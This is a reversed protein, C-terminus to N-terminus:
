EDYYSTEEYDLSEMEQQPQSQAEPDQEEGEEDEDEEEAEEDAEENEDVEGTAAEGSQEEDSSGGADGTDPADTGLATDAAAELNMDPDDPEHILPEGGLSVISRATHTVTVEENRVDLKSVIVVSCRRGRMYSIATDYDRTAVPDGNTMRDWLEFFHKMTMGEPVLAQAARGFARVLLVAPAGGGGGYDSGGGSGGGGGSYGGGTKVQGCGYESDVADAREAAAFAAAASAGGDHGAEMDQFMVQFQAVREPVDSTRGCDQCRMGSGADDGARLAKRCECDRRSCTEYYPREEANCGASYVVRVAARFVMDAGGYPPPANQAEALTMTETRGVLREAEASHYEGFPMLISLTAMAPQLHEPADAVRHYSTVQAGAGISISPRDMFVTYEVNRLAVLPGAGAGGFADVSTGFVSAKVLEGGADILAVRKWVADTRTLQDDGVAVVCAVTNGYQKATTCQALMVSMPTYDDATGNAAFDVGARALDGDTIAIVNLANRVTLEWPCPVDRRWREDVAGMTCDSLMYAQGVVVSTRLRTGTAGFAKVRIRVGDHSAFVFQAPAKPSRPEIAQEVVGLMTVYSRYSKLDALNMVARGKLVTLKKKPAVRERKLAM